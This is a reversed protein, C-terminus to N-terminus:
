KDIEGKRKKRRDRCVVCVGTTERSSAAAAQLCCSSPPPLLSHCRQWMQFFLASHPALSRGVAGGCRVSVLSQAPRAPVSFSVFCKRHKPRIEWSTCRNKMPPKTFDDPAVFVFIFFSDLASRSLFFSFIITL